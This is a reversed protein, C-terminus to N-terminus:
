APLAEDDIRNRVVPAWRRAPKGLLLTVSQGASDGGLTRADLFNQRKNRHSAADAQNRLRYGTVVRMLVHAIDLDRVRLGRDDREGPGPLGEAGFNAGEHLRNALDRLRISCTVSADATTAALAHPGRRPRRAALRRAVAPRKAQAVGPGYRRLIDRTTPFLSYLSTLAERQLGAGPELPVTAIRTVLEVHLEWAARREDDNPEWTQEVGGLGFPLNLSVKYSTPRPM